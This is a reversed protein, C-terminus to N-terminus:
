QPEGPTSESLNVDGAFFAEYIERARTLDNQAVLLTAPEAGSTAGIPDTDGRIVTDIDNGELLERIMEAEAANPFSALEVLQMDEPDSKDSEASPLAGVLEVDCENCRAFGERYETRCSPCFPM